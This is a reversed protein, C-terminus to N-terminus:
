AACSRNQPTSFPEHPVESVAQCVPAATGHVAMQAMCHIARRQRDVTLLAWVQAPPTGSVTLFYSTTM